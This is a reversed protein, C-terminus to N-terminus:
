RRKELKILSEYREQYKKRTNKHYIWCRICRADKKRHQRYWGLIHSTARSLARNMDENARFGSFYFRIDRRAARCGYSM